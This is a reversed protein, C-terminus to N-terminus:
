RFGMTQGSVCRSLPSRKLSMRYFNESCMSPTCWYKCNYSVKDIATVDWDSTVSKAQTGRVSSRFLNLTWLRTDDPDCECLECKAIYVNQMRVMLVVMQCRQFWKRGCERWLHWRHWSNKQLHLEGHKRVSCSATTSPFASCFSHDTENKFLWCVKNPQEKAWKQLRSFVGDNCEIIVHEELKHEEIKTAAIAMGFGIELVRGGALRSFSVFTSSCNYIPAASIFCRGHMWDKVLPEFCTSMRCSLRVCSSLSSALIFCDEFSWCILFYLFPMSGKSAAITALKHMYPTEWREMVPKGKILLHDDTFDYDASSAKWDGKHDEGKTFIPNSNEM